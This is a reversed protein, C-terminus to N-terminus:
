VTKWWFIFPLLSDHLKIQPQRPTRVTHPDHNKVHKEPWWSCRRSGRTSERRGPWTSTRAATEPSTRRSFSGFCIMQIHLKHFLIWYVTRLEFERPDTWHNWSVLRIVCNFELNIPTLLENLHQTQEAATCYRTQCWFCMQPFIWRVLRCFGMEALITIWLLISITMFLQCWEFNHSTMISKWWFESKTM